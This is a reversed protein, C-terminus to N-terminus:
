SYSHAKIAEYAINVQDQNFSGTLIEINLKKNLHHFMEKCTYEKIVNQKRKFIKGLLWFFVSIFHITSIMTSIYLMHQQPTRQDVAPTAHLEQFYTLKLLTQTLDRLVFTSAGIIQCTKFLRAFNEAFAFEVPNILEYYLNQGCLFFHASIRVLFEKQEM